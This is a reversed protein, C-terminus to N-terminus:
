ALNVQVWIPQQAQRPYNLAATQATTTPAMNVMHVKFHMQNDIHNPKSHVSKSNTAVPPRTFNKDATYIKQSFLATQLNVCVKIYVKKM